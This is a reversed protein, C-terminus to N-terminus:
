EEKPKVFVKFEYMTMGKSSLVRIYKVVNHKFGTSNFFFTVIMSDGPALYKKEYEPVTCGCTGAVQHVSVTDSYLNIVSFQTFLTDGENIIGFDTPNTPIILSDVNEQAKTENFPSLGLIFFLILFVKHTIIRVLNSKKYQNNSYM